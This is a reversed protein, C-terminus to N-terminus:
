AGGVAAARDGEAGVDDHGAGVGLVGVPFVDGHGGAEIGGALVVRLDGDDRPADGGALGLEDGEEGRGEAVEGGLALALGIVAEAAEDVGAAMAFVFDVLEVVFGGAAVKGAVAAAAGGEDRGGPGALDLPSELREGDVHIMVVRPFAAEVEAGDGAGALDLAAKGIAVIGFGALELGEDAGGAGVAVFEQGLEFGLQM